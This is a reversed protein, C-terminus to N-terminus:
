FLFFFTREGPYNADSANRVAPVANGFRNDRQVNLPSTVVLTGARSAAPRHVAISRSPLGKPALFPGLVIAVAVALIM